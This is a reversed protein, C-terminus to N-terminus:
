AIGNQPLQQLQQQLVQRPQELTQLNPHTPQSQASLQAFAPPHPQQVAPPWPQSLSIPPYGAHAAAVPVQTEAMDRGAPPAGAKPLQSFHLLDHAQGHDVHESAESGHPQRLEHVRSPAGFAQFSSSAPDALKGAGCDGQTKAGGQSSPGAAGSPSTAGQTQGSRSGGAYAVLGASAGVLARPVQTPGTAAFANKVSTGWQPNGASHATGSEQSHTAEGSVGPPCATPELAAGQSCAGATHLVPAFSSSSPRERPVEAGDPNSLFVGIQENRRENTAFAHAHGAFREGAHLTQPAPASEGQTPRNTGAEVSGPADPGSAACPVTTAGGEGSTPAAERAATQRAQLATGETRRGGDPTEKAQTDTPARSTAEGYAQTPRSAVPVSPCARQRGVADAGPESRSAGAHLPVSSAADDASTPGSAAASASPLPQPSPISPSNSPLPQVSSAPAELPSSQGDASSPQPRDQEGRQPREADSRCSERLITLNSHAKENEKKRQAKNERERQGAQTAREDEIGMASRESAEQARQVAREERKKLEVERLERLRRADETRRRERSALKESLRRLRAQIKMQEKSDEESIIHGLHQRTRELRDWQRRREERLWELEAEEAETLSVLRVGAIEHNARLPGRGSEEERRTSDGSAPRAGGASTRELQFLRLNRFETERKKQDRLAGRLWVALQEEDLDPPARWPLAARQEQFAEPLTQPPSFSPLPSSAPATAGALRWPDGSGSPPRASIPAASAGPTSITSPPFSLGPFIDIASAQDGPSSYLVSYPDGPGFPFACLADDAEEDESESSWLYMDEAEQLLRADEERKSEAAIRACASPSSPSCKPASSRRFADSAGAAAAPFASCAAAGQAGSTRRSPSSAPSPAHSSDASPTARGSAAGRPLAELPLSAESNALRFFVDLREAGREAQLWARESPCSGTGGKSGCAFSSFHPPQTPSLSSRSLLPSPAALGAWVASPPLDLMAKRLAELTASRSDTLGNPPADPAAAITRPLADLLQMEKVCQFLSRASACLHETVKLRRERSLVPLELERVRRQEAASLRPLTYLMDEPPLAARHAAANFDIGEGTRHRKRPSASSDGDGSSEVDRKSGGRRADHSGRRGLSGSDEGSTQRSLEPARDVGGELAASGSPSHAGSTSAARRPSTLGSRRDASAGDDAASGGGHVAGGSHSMQEPPSVPMHRQGTAAELQPALHARVKERLLKKKAVCAPASSAVVFWGDGNPNDDLFLPVKAIELDDALLAKLGEADELEESSPSSLRPARSPTADASTSSPSGSRSAARTTKGDQELVTKSGELPPFLASLIRLRDPDKEREPKTTEAEGGKGEEPKRQASAAAEPAGRGKDAQEGQGAVGAGEAEKPSKSTEKAKAEADVVPTKAAGGCPAERHSEQSAASSGSVTALARASAAKRSGGLGGAAPSDASQQSRARPSPAANARGLSSVKLSACPSLGSSTAAALSSYGAAAAAAAEAVVAAARSAADNPPAQAGLGRGFLPAGGVGLPGGAGGAATLLPGLATVASSPSPLRSPVIGPVTSGTPSARGSLHALRSAAATLVAASSQGGGASNSRSRARGGTSAGSRPQARHTPTGPPSPTASLVVQPSSCKSRSLLGKLGHPTNAAPSPRAAAASGGAAAGTEKKAAAPADAAGASRRAGQCRLTQGPGGAALPSALASPVAAAGAMGGQPGAELPSASPKPAVGVASGAGAAPRQAAAAAAAASAPALPGPAVANAVPQGTPPLLKRKAAVVPSAAPAPPAAPTPVAQRGAPSAALAATAASPAVFGPTDPLPSPSNAAAGPAPLETPFRPPATSAAASVAVSTLSASVLKSGDKGPMRPPPATASAAQASSPATRGAVGGEDYAGSVGRNSAPLALPAAGAHRPNPPVSPAKVSSPPLGWHAPLPSALQSTPHSPAASRPAAVGAALAESARADAPLLSASTVMAQPLSSSSIPQGVGSNTALAASTRLPGSPAGGSAGPAPTQLALSRKGRSGAGGGEVAPGAPGGAVTRAQSSSAPPASVPPGAFPSLSPTAVPLAAAHSLRQLAPLQHTDRGDPLGTGAAHVLGAGSLLAPCAAGGGATGAAAVATGAANDAAGEVSHPSQPQSLLRLVNQQVPTGRPTHALFFAAAQELLHPSGQSPLLQGPCLFASRPDAQDSQLGRQPDSEGALSAPGPPRRLDQQLAGYSNEACKPSVSAQTLQTPAVSSRESTPSRLSFPPVPGQTAAHQQFCSLNIRSADAAPNVGPLAAAACPLPAGRLPGAGHHFFSASSLPAAQTKQRASHSLAEDDCVAPSSPLSEPLTLPAQEGQGSLLCSLPDAM